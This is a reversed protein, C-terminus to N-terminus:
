FSFGTHLIMLLEIYVVTTQYFCIMSTASGTYTASALNNKDALYRLDRLGYSLTGFGFGSNYPQSTQLIFDRTKEWITRHHVINLLVPNQPVRSSRHLQM